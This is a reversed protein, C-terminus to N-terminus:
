AAGGKIAAIADACKERIVMMNNTMHSGSAILYIDELAVLLQYREGMNRLLEGHVTKVCMGDELRKTEVGACANVCAVIRRTNAKQEEDTIVTGNISTDCTTLLLFGDNSWITYEEAKWPEPTHQTTQSM